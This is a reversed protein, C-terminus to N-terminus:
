KQFKEYKSGKPLHIAQEITLGKRLRTGLFNFPLGEDREWASISKTQGKYTYLKSHSSNDMQEQKTAWRCNEPCYERNSNDIRDISHDLTPKIGMDELFSTFNKWRDCIFVPNDRYCKASKQSSVNTCRALMNRYSSYTSKELSQPTGRKAFGHKFNSCRRCGKSAGSELHGVFVEKIFGCECECSVKKHKYPINYPTGIVKWKGYVKKMCM